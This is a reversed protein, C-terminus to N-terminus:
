GGAEAEQSGAGQKLESDCTGSASANQGGRGPADRSPAKSRRKERPPPDTPAFSDVVRLLARITDPLLERFSCNAEGKTGLDSFTDADFNANKLAEYLKKANELRPNRNNEPM